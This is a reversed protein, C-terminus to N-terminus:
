RRDGPVLTRRPEGAGAGHGAAALAAALGAVTPDAFLTRVPLDLGYVDRIRAMLRTATLSHGGLAFFNDTVGVPTTLALMEAFIEALKSETPTRPAVSAQGPAAAWDPGPLARRDMKGSGTLPLADLSVFAAPVMYEPLRARLATSLAAADPATAGVIYGVLRKDDPGIEKVAVAADRVGPQGRLAVEIEGLEIRMGRLKVQSDIRGLFEIAGDSRWRGHDGTAYLRSGAPGFPDPLFRQATLAPRQHYGRAVQVGGIHLEGVVGVPVQRLQDDLVYMRVNSVPGGIPVRSRGALASPTAQWATVDIAAETPGYFNHLGVAPLTELCRRALAAPLEEGSCVIHRVTAFSAARADDDAAEADALFSNLM